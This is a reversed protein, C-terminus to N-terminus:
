PFVWIFKEASAISRESIVAEPKERDRQLWVVLIKYRCGNPSNGEKGISLRPCQHNFLCILCDM